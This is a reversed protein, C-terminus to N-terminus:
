YGEYQKLIGGTAAIERLPIPFVRKVDKGLVSSVLDHRALDFFRQGEMNLESRREDLIENLYKEDTNLDIARLETMGRKQHLINLLDLGKDKGMAEAAILYMEAYRIVYAPNDQKDEGRYKQSRGDPSISSHNDKFLVTSNRVDGIRKQLFDGLDKAAFFAIEPRVADLRKFSLSNFASRNQLDFKLEFISEKTERESYLRSFEKDGFLEYKASAIIENAYKAANAKDGYCLYVRALLGKVADNNIYINGKNDNSVLSEAETLDSIIKAYVEAVTARGLIDTVGQTKVSLPVGWESNTSWHEGWIRLADFHGLARVFLAEGRIDDKEVDELDEVRDINELIRNAANITGYISVWLRENYLNASTLRKEGLENLSELIYGGTAGNDSYADIMLPYYGGYYSQNGMLSYLGLRASRIGEATKFVEDTATGDLSDQDLLGCGNILSFFFAFFIYKITKKM